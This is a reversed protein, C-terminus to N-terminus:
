VTGVEGVRVAVTMTPQGALASQMPSRRLAAEVVRRLRADDVGAAAIGVEVQMAVPGADVEVGDADRMGLMGRADSHSGVDVDLRDLVIGEEVAVMAIATTACAAIGARFYWGPSPLDGGGGFEAPMDTGIQVGSGHTATVRLGGQWRARASVDAHLGNAPRRTFVAVARRMAEAIDHQTGM